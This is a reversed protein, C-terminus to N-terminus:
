DQRNDDLGRIKPEFIECLMRALGPWLVSGVGGSILALWLVHVGVAIGAVTLSMCVLMTVMMSAASCIMRTDIHKM